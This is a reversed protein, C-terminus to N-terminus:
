SLKFNSAILAPTEIAHKWNLAVRHMCRRLTTHTDGHCFRSVMRQEYRRILTVRGRSTLYCGGDEHHETSDEGIMGHTLIDRTVGEVLIPRFPEMLDLVLNHRYDATTHLVGLDADLGVQTIARLMDSQCLASLYSLCANVADRPPRRTRGTYSFAPPMAKAWESLYLASAKGEIGMLEATNKASLVAKQSKKMEKFFLEPPPNSRRRLMFAQNHIKTAVIVRAQRMAWLTDACCRYQELRLGGKSKRHPMLDGLLDKQGLLTVGIGRELLAQLLAGSLTVQPSIILHEIQSLPITRNLEETQSEPPVADAGYAHQWPIGSLRMSNGKLGAKGYALDILVTSM